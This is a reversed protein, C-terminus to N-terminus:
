YGDRDQRANRIAARVRKRLEEGSTVKLFIPHFRAAVAFHASAADFRGLQLETNALALYIESRQEIKLASEYERAAHEYHGLIEHNAGALMPIRVDTPCSERVGALDQLNRRVRVARQSDSRTEYAASTRRTLETVRLSCHVTRWSWHFLALGCAMASLFVVAIQAARSM